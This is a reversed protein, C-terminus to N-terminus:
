ESKMKTILEIFKDNTKLSQLSPEQLIKNADILGLDVAKQLLLVALDSKGQQAFLCAELFPQDSNKPDALKYIALMKEAVEFNNQQIANSSISFGALSLFGLLRQHMPDKESQLKQIEPKWWNLDKSQFANIYEQKMATETRLTKQRQEVTSMYAAIQQLQNTAQEYKSVDYLGGLFSIIKNNIAVKGFDNQAKSLRKENETLFTKILGSDIAAFHNRMRNFQLWYFADRFNASDVWEHKGKWEIFFHNGVSNLLSQDFLLLDTYNMDDVGAFGLVGINKKPISSVAGCYILSNVSANSTASMAVKAGGSFGALTIQDDVAFRNKTEAILTNAIEATQDQTLGNKSDESSILVTNFEEALHQFKKAVFEAGAHPDFFVIVANKKATDYNLPVYFSFSEQPNSKCQINSIVKGKEFIEKQQVPIKASSISPQKKVPHSTCAAIIISFLVLYKM